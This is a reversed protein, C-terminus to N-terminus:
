LLSYLWIGQGPGNSVIAINATRAIKAGEGFSNPIPPTAITLEQTISYSINKNL